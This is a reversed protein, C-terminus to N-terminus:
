SCRRNGKTEREKQKEKKKNEKKKIKIEKRIEDEFLDFDEVHSYKDIREGEPVDNVSAVMDKINAKKPPMLFGNYLFTGQDECMLISYMGGGLVEIIKAGCWLHNVGTVNRENDYLDWQYRWVCHQGVEWTDTKSTNECKRGPDGRQLFFLNCNLVIERSNCTCICHLIIYNYYLIYNYLKM